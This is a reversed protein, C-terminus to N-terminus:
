RGPGRESLGKEINGVTEKMDKRHNDNLLILCTLSPNAQPLSYFASRQQTALEGWPEQWCSKDIMTGVSIKDM